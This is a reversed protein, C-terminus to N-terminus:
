CPHKRHCATQHYSCFHRLQSVLGHHKNTLDEGCCWCLVRNVTVLSVEFLLLLKQHTCSHQKNLVHGDTFCRKDIHEKIESVCSREASNQHKRIRLRNETAVGGEPGLQPSIALTLGTRSESIWRKQGGHVTIGAWWSKKVDSRKRSRICSDLIYIEWWIDPKRNWRILLFLSTAKSM